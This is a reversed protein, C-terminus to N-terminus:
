RLEDSGGAFVPRGALVLCDMDANPVFLAVREVSTQGFGLGCTASRCHARSAGEVAPILILLGDPTGPRSM